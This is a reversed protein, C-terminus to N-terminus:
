HSFVVMSELDVEPALCNGPAAALPRHRWLTEKSDPFAVALPTLRQTIELTKRNRPLLCRHTAKPCGSAFNQMWDATSSERKETGTSRLLELGVATLSASATESDLATTHKISVAKIPPISVHWQALRATLSATAPHIEGDMVHPSVMPHRPVPTAPTKSGPHQSNLLARVLM